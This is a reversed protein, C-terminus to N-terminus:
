STMSVRVWGCNAEQAACFRVGVGGTHSTASETPSTPISAAITMRRRMRRRGGGSVATAAFWGKKM